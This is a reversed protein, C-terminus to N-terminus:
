HLFIESGQILAFLTTGTSARSTAKEQGATRERGDGGMMGGVSHLVSADHFCISTKKKEKVGGREEVEM